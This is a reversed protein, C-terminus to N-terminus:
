EDLQDAALALHQQLQALNAAPLGAQDDAAVNIGDQLQQRDLLVQDCRQLFDLMLQRGVVPLIWVAAVPRRWFRSLGTGPLRGLTIGQKGFDDLKLFLAGLFHRGAAVFHGLLQLLNMGGRLDAARVFGVSSAV